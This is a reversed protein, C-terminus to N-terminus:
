SSKKKLEAIKNLAEIPTIANIDMNKIEEVISNDRIARQRRESEVARTEPTEDFMKVQDEPVRKTTDDLEKRIGNELIGEELDVLIRYAKDTVEQPLGALKAVEIGYSRDVGGPLIKYLFVIGSAGPAAPTGPLDPNGPLAPTGLGGYREEKVAVSYNAAHPLKDALAILEHYHTAFLTKCRIRDHLHETIAWAISMGDYTSTGRGVEDLIVLSKETAHSLINATEQMEVMFTSQGRVLNDSAGVRTFIRDVLGIEASSAPVFMGTQAMLVILACQRLFTSKGGMNPGTILLIRQGDQQLQLDNPVFRSSFTMKEVVPHRGGSINIGGGERVVPRCYNNELATTAYACIVDILALAKATKQIRGIKEVVAGRVEAFLKQELAVIKEEAGLVKEEYEKLEPTIFREANVLTQKRIYHEPARAANGKSLEIYYGFVKNYRVKLNGIGTLEIEKRQLEQIYSKGDRSIKKLDDLEANFGDAIMGGDTVSLPPEPVIARGILDSLEDLSDLSERAAANLRATAVAMHKKIEPIVMLTSKLGILDRANGRNLSLRAVLRELDLVSTLKERLNELLARDSIMEAVAEHRSGIEAANVLPRTLYHRLLRGGMASISSDVVWLLSGETKNERLTETLELNRITAEDLPMFDSTEYPAKEGLHPLSTKQTSRLYDTLINEADTEAGAYEFFFIHQDARRLSETVPDQLASKSLVIEAPSIRMIEIFLKQATQVETVMFEGTSVDAYAIEYVDRERTFTLLFNNSKRELINDDLTTGPTIVRVVDRKVIGPLNPDSLQECIAVKKGLRTLKAIYNDAAHYPIGCMPAKHDGKNRSTLTIQLLKSAELADEFFMEYFDGLRFFLIADGYKDKIERYQKMMPTM